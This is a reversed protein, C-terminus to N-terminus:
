VRKLECKVYHALRGLEGCDHITEAIASGYHRLLASIRDLLVRGGCAIRPVNEFIILEPPDDQFVQLTLWVGRLTLRNLAQYKDTLSLTESPLGSFGKCPASLFFSTRGSVARPWKFTRPPQRGGDLHRRSATSRRMSTGDFLDLVTGPVGSLRGFDKIAPGSVDDGGVCRFVAQMNGERATGRNFGRAGGGLGAIPSIIFKACSSWHAPKHPCLPTEMNRPIVGTGSIAPAQAKDVMIAARRKDRSRQVRKAGTDAITM